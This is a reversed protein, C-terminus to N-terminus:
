CDEEDDDEDDSDKDDDKSDKDDDDSEDSEDKKKKDDEDENKDEEKEEGLLIEQTKMRLYKNFEAKADDTQEHAMAVVVNELSKKMEPTMKPLEWIM